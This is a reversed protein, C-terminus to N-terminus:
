KPTDKSGWSSFLKEVSDMSKTAAEKQKKWQKLAILIVLWFQVMLTAGVGVLFAFWSWTFVIEM